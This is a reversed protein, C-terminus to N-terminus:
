KGIVLFYISSSRGGEMGKPGGFRDKIHHIIDVPLLAFNEFDSGTAM